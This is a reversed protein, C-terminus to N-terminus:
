GTYLRQLESSSIKGLLRSNKPNILVRSALAQRGLLMRFTMTERDTLTLEIEWQQDDMRLLTKIVCRKQRHGTSSTVTRYDVLPAECAIRIRKKRPIPDLTFRVWPAGDKRFREIFSAHIASTKAGTDIKAKIAPVGLDPLSCWENWGITLKKIRAM